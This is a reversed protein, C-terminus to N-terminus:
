RQLHTNSAQQYFASNPLETTAFLLDFVCVCVCVCQLTILFPAQQAKQATHVQTTTLSSERAGATNGPLM